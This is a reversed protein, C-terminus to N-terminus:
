YRTKIFSPTFIELKGNIKNESIFSLVINKGNVSLDFDRNTYKPIKGNSVMVLKIYDNTGKGKQLAASALIRPPNIEFSDFGDLTFMNYAKTVNNIYIDIGRDSPTMVVLEPEPAYDMEYLVRKKPSLVNKVEERIINKIYNLKDNRNKM